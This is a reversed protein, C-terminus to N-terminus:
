TRSERTVQLSTVSAKLNSRSSTHSQRPRTKFTSTVRCIQMLVQSLLSTCGSRKRSVPTGDGSSRDVHRDDGPPVNDGTEASKPKGGIKGLRVKQDHGTQKAIREGDEVPTPVVVRATSAERDLETSSASSRGSRGTEAKADKITARGRSTLGKVGGVGSKVRNPSARRSRLSAMPVDDSEDTTADGDSVNTQKLSKSPHHSTEKETAPSTRSLRLQPPTAQKQISM